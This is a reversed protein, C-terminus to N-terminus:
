SASAWARPGGGRVSRRSISRSHRRRGAATRGRLLRSRATPFRWVRTQRRSAPIMGSGSDGRRLYRRVCRATAQDRHYCGSHQLCARDNRGHHPGDTRSRAAEFSETETLIEDSGAFDVANAIFRKVGEGSGVSDYSISVNRHAVGYEEIWKTYLPAAFSSGVGSSLRRVSRRMWWGPACHCCLGAVALVCDAVPTQLWSSSIHRGPGAADPQGSGPLALPSGAPASCFIQFSWRSSSAAEAGQNSPSRFM